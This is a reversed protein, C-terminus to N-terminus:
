FLGLQRDTLTAMSTGQMALIADAVPWLQREIYFAYDMKSKVYPIPEPGNVTMVYEIWGGRDYRAASRFLM